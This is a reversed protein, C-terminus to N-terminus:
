DVSEYSNTLYKIPFLCGISFQFQNLKLNDMVDGTPSFINDYRNKQNVINHMGSRYSLDAIVRINGLRYSCGAGALWGIASRIFIANATSALQEKQYSSNGGAETDEAHITLTKYSQSRIDYFIGAMIFPRLATKTFDYRLILPLSIYDSKINVTNKLKLYTGSTDYWGNSYSYGFSQRRYSPQLSITFQSKYTFAIEFGSFATLRKYNVYKKDYNEPISDISILSSFRDYVKVGTLAGGGRIGIYFQTFTYPDKSNYGGRKQAFGLYCMCLLVFPLIRRLDMACRMSARFITIKEKEQYNIVDSYENELLINCNIVLIKQIVPYYCLIGM